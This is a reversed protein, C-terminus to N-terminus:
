WWIKFPRYTEIGMVHKVLKYAELRILRAYSVNKKLDRHHITTKLKNDWEQILTKQAGEKM